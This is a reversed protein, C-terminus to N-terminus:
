RNGGNRFAELETRVREVVPGWEGPRQQRFLRMSPYWPTDERELLWRWDPTYPMLVWTPKGLAGALHAVSTDVTVILDMREMQAATDAMDGALAGLNTLPWRSQALQEAEPGIQLSYFRAGEVGLLPALGALAISRFRYIDHLFSPNGAWNLGIKLGEGNLDLAAAKQRAEEPVYVYPTEAPITELRTGFAPPLSLLPCHWDFPPLPDDEKVVEAVGPLARAMRVLREQVELVVTGGAKQVMPVYRLFELTDGYGQEAHLLIRAGNLPEGKWQPQKFDRRQLPAREWRWEYNEWGEEFEGRVLHILGINMRVKSLDPKLERAREYCAMAQDLENRAHHVVGLNCWAEATDPEIALTQQIAAIADEHRGMDLLALGMNTYAGSFEPDGPPIQAFQEAAEEPRDLTRLVNGLNNRAKTLGPQLRLAENLEVIASELKGELALTNALNYHADASDPRL